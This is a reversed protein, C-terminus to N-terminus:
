CYRRGTQSPEPGTPWPEVGHAVLMEELRQLVHARDVTTASDMIPRALANFQPWFQAAHRLRPLWHPLMGALHDLEADLQARNKM